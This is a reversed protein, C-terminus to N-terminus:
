NWGKMVIERAKRYPYKRVLEAVPMQPDGERMFHILVVFAWYDQAQISNYSPIICCYSVDFGVCHMGLEYNSFINYPNKPNYFIEGKGEATKINATQFLSM